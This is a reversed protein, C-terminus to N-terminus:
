GKRRRKRWGKKAMRSREAFTRGSNAIRAAKSKSMGKRRMARYADQRSKYVFGARGGKDSVM